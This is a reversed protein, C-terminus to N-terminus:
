KNRSRLGEVIMNAYSSAIEELSLRGAPRYWTAVGTCMQLIGIAAVTTDPISFEGNTVGENLLGEFVNQYERRMMMIRPRFEEDVARLESDGVFAERARNGHFNVHFRIGAELRQAPAAGQLDELKDHLGRLLDDMAHCMISQLLTQKSDFYYYLTATQKDVATAIDRLTTGHYGRKAFLDVAAEYVADETVLGKATSPLARTM